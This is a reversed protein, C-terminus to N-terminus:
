KELGVGHIEEKWFYNNHEIIITSSYKYRTDLHETYTVNKSVLYSKILEREMM